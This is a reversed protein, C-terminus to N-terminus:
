FNINLGFAFTRAPLYIDSNGDYGSQMNRRPFMGRRKTILLPNNASFYIKAGSINLQKLLKSPINYALNINTLELMNSTTLWRTSNSATIKTKDTGNSVRPVDTVDGKKRWRKLLDTHLKKYSLSSSGPEMFSRYTSDYFKGGLQYYFSFSFSWNKYSLTSGLGGTVKPIACGSWDYKAHEMKETYKIGDIEILENEGWVYDDNDIDAVFLNYGTEPNVGGWQLLWFEYRSHGEEVKHYNSIYPEIPLSTIKNKLFTANLNITWNWDPTAIITGDLTIELGRNYMTGANVNQADVGSSLPPTIEFLLNSSERNFFEITGNLRSHFFAFDLGLNTNKSVEWSLNNNGLSSQVYGPESGNPYPTYVARWPYYGSVDDNGIEGYSGRIKLMNIFRVNKMFKERDIRWGFGVSWFNGWRSDKYFRSSGDRRYSASGFYKNDYDYNIRSLYGEVTYKNVYASPKGNAETFNGFEFNSGIMIQGKMSASLYDYQYDYSEHGLMVDIHHKGIKKNYTLLQNLTWTTTRSSSKTSTGTNGKEPYVYVGKWGRYSNSGVGATATFKFDKLFTVETYFKGNVTSRKYGDYINQLEIAPNNGAVFDRKPLPLGDETTYGLGFDYMKNGNADLLYEGTEPHHLHIPYINGVNREFRFPNTGNGSSEDQNGGSESMTASLNTGIKLWKTIKSNVNAKATYREFTSGIIYGNDNTYGVSTYYDTKDSGGSINVGADHRIGIREIANKWDLDDAWLLRANPNLKGSSADFLKDPDMNFANYSMGSILSNAAQTNAAELSSGGYVLSNRVAEWYTEMYDTIGMTEYDKSQRTTLGLNYRLRVKVKGKVGKKSTILIVGNAGRAGYLSASSADKLITLSEIDDPNISSMSNDYPMGDLVILPASNANFSGVGRVRITPASGPQGNSTSIQVGATTGTLMQSVETSPRNELSKSDVTAASGTFTGKTSTGYAVIMVADLAISEPQLVISLHTSSITIEANKYGISSVTLTKVSVPVEFSFTGDDLTLTNISTGTAIVTAFPIPTGDESSLVVGTVKKKQDEIDIGAAWAALSFFLCILLLTSKFYNKLM